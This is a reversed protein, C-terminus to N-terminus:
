VRHKQRIILSEKWSSCRTPFQSLLFMQQTSRRAEGGMDKNRDQESVKRQDKRLGPLHSVCGAERSL